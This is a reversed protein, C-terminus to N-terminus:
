GQRWVTGDCYVPTQITGGSTIVAAFSLATNNDTVFSRMSKTGAACAPLSAVTTTAIIPTTITPSTKLLTAGASSLSIDGTITKWAADAASQGIFAQGSTARSISPSNGEALNFGAVSGANIYPNTVGILSVSQITVGTTVGSNFDIGNTLSDLVTGNISVGSSGTVVSVGTDGIAGSIRGGRINLGKGLFRIWANGGVTQDGMWPNDFIISKSVVGNSDFGNAKLTIDQEWTDNIFSFSEGGGKIAPGTHNTYTNGKFYGTTTTGSVAGLAVAPAGGNFVNDEARSIISQDLNFLTATGPYTVPYLHTNLLRFYVSNQADILFGAFSASTYSVTLNKITIGISGRADIFRAVAGGTFYLLSSADNNGTNSVGEITIDYKGNLSLAATLVCGGGTSPTQPVLIVGGYKGSGNPIADIAAQFAIQDGTGTGNCTAGFDLVSMRQSNYASQTESVGGTWPPTYNTNVSPVSITQSGCTLGVGCAIVGTMGGLSAVGSAVTTSTDPLVKIIYNMTISPQVLLFGTAVGGQPTGTFTSSAQTSTIVIPAASIVTSQPTNGQTTGASGGLQPTTSTIAGNTVTGSPTYAPLNPTTLIFHSSGGEAGVANASGGSGFWADPLHFSATGGMNNRGVITQGRFDPVNFTTSGNGNGYPFFTATVATSVSANNSVTVSTTAVATVTTGPAICTAEVKAGLKISQTDSIGSLINLGSTCIVSTPLTVTSLLLPYTARALPQGYAFVYNPPAVLGSWPLVTGVVNGDGVTTGGGGGGAGTSTTIADWIVVNNADKVVQRYTGDGYTQGTPQPRGAADLLVPNTSLTTQGADLWVNKKTSTSPIYYTATGSAVPNGSDDLYQQKANPLLTAQGLALSPIIVGLLIGSLASAIRQKWTKAMSIQGEIGRRKM